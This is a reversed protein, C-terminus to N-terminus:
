ITVSVFYMESESDENPLALSSRMDYFPTGKEIKLGYLSIHEVGLKFCTGLSTVVEQMSQGPLGYMIDVNINDFKESRADTVAKINDNVNHARGCTVLDNSCFSQAGISLRNIGAKKFANLINLYEGEYHLIFPQDALQQM